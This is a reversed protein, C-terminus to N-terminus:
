DEVAMFHKGKRNQAREKKAGMAAAGVDALSGFTNTMPSEMLM